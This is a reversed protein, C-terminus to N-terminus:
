IEGNGGQSLNMNVVGQCARAGSRAVVTKLGVSTYIKNVVNGTLTFPYPAGNITDVGTWKVSGSVLNDDGLSYSNYFMKWTTNEDVYNDSHWCYAETAPPATIIVVDQLVPDPNDGQYCALDFETGVFSPDYSFYSGSTTVNPIDYSSDTPSTLSCSDGPELKPIVWDIESSTATVVPIIRRGPNNSPIIDVSISNDASGGPGTCHASFTTLANIIESSVSGLTSTSSITDDGQKIICSSAGTSSWSIITSNGQQTPNSSAGL